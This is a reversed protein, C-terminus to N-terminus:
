EQEPHHGQPGPFRGAWLSRVGGNLYLQMALPGFPAALDRIQEAREERPCYVALFGAGRQAERADIDAFVEETGFFRSVKAMLAGWLGVEARLEDFFRSTEEASATLVDRFGAARLALEADKAKQFSPFAAFVYHTPYFVGLTAGSGHFFKHLRTKAADTEVRDLRRSPPHSTGRARARAKSDELLTDVDQM